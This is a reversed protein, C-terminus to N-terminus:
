HNFVLYLEKVFFVYKYPPPVHFKTHSMKFWTAIGHFVIYIRKFIYCKM